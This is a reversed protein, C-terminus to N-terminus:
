RKTNMMLMRCRICRCTRGSCSLLILLGVHPDQIKLGIKDQRALSRRLRDLQGSPTQELILLKTKHMWGGDWITWRTGQGAKGHKVRGQNGADEDEDEDDEDDEAGGRSACQMAHMVQAPVLGERSERRGKKEEGEEMGENEAETSM